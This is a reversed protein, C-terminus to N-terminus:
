VVDPPRAPSEGADSCRSTRLGHRTRHLAVLDEGAIGRVLDAEVRALGEGDRAALARRQPVDVALAVEVEESADGHVAEPVAMRRHDLGDAALGGLQQVDRIVVV